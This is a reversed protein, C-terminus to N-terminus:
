GKAKIEKIYQIEKLFSDYIKQFPFVYIPGLGHTMLYIFLIGFKTEDECFDTPITVTTRM